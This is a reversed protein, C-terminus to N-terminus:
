GVHSPKKERFLWPSIAEPLQLEFFPLKELFTSQLVHQVPEESLQKKLGYATYQHCVLCVIGKAFILLLASECLHLASRGPIEPSFLNDLQWELIGIYNLIRELQFGPIQQGISHHLYLCGM